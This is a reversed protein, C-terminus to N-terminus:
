GHLGGARSREDRDGLGALAEKEILGVHREGAAHRDRKRLPATIQVLLAPHHRCVAVTTREVRRRAARDEPAAGAGHQELPEVLRNGIAIVDVGDDEAAADVIVACRFDAEGRRADVTLNLRNRLRQYLGSDICAADAIDFTVTSRGRKAIRNLDRGQGLCEALRRSIPLIACDTRDFAIDAMEVGGSTDGTQDLRRQHQLVALQHGAQMEM